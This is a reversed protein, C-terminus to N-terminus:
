QSMAHALSLYIGRAANGNNAGVDFQTVHTLPELDLIIRHKQHRPRYSIEGHGFDARGGVNAVDPRELTPPLAV